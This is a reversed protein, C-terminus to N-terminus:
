AKVEVHHPYEALLKQELEPTDPFIRDAARVVEVEVKDKVTQWGDPRAATPSFTITGVGDKDWETRVWFAKKAILTNAEEYGYDPDGAYDEDFDEDEDRYESLWVVSGFAQRYVVWGCYTLSIRYDYWTQHPHPFELGDDMNRKVLGLEHLRDLDEVLMDSGVRIPHAITLLYFASGSYLDGSSSITAKAIRALLDIQSDTVDIDISTQM